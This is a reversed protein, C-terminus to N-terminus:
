AHVEVGQDCCVVLWSCLKLAYRSLHLESGFRTSRWASSPAGLEQTCRQAPFSPHESFNHFSPQACPPPTWGSVRARNWPANILILKEIGKARASGSEKWTNRQIQRKISKSWLYDRRRWRCWQSKNETWIFSAPLILNNMNGPVPPTTYGAEGCLRSVM